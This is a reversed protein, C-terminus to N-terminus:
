NNQQRRAANLNAAGLFVVAHRQDHLKAITRSDSAADLKALCLDATVVRQRAGAQRNYGIVAVEACGDAFYFSSAARGVFTQRAGGWIVPRVPVQFIATPAIGLLAAAVIHQVIAVDLTPAPSRARRRWDDGKVLYACGRWGGIHGCLWSGCRFGRLRLWCRHHPEAQILVGDRGTRTSHHAPVSKAGAFDVQVPLANIHYAVKFGAGGRRLFIM